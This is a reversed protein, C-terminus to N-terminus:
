FVDDHEVALLESASYLALAMLPVLFAHLCM